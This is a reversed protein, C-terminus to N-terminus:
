SFYRILHKLNSRKQLRHNLKYMVAEVEDGTINEFSKGKTFYQRILGKTFKNEVEENAAPM